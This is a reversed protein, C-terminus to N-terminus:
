IDDLTTDYNIQEFGSDTKKVSTISSGYENIIYIFQGNKTLSFHRPGPNEKTEFISPETLEYESNNLKYQYVANMGLDAIYLEEKFFQASHAHSTKDTTNYNFIQSAENLKGDRAISYVAASGGGYNSVVAKNGQKNISIHCPGEGHSNVKNLFKLLGNELIKYSSVSGGLSESVAYLYKKNPSYAIFSPNETAIALEPESLEGTKTNFQLKYIGESTGNTYTGIYLPTNQAFTTTILISFVLFLLNIKM